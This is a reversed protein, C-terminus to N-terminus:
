CRTTPPTTQDGDPNGYEAVHQHIIEHLEAQYKLSLSQAQRPAYYFDVLAAEHKRVAQIGYQEIIRQALEQDNHRRYRCRVLQSANIAARNPHRTAWLYNLDRFVSARHMMENTDIYWAVGGVGEYLDYSYVVTLDTTNSQVLRRRDNRLVQRFQQRDRYHNRSNCHVLQVARDRRLYASCARLYDPQWLNDSDLYAILCGQAVKLGDNRPEWEITSARSNTHNRQVRVRDDKAQYLAMIQTTADTSADDVLILEFRRYSQNLVSEIAYAITDQRNFAPMIVSILPAAM